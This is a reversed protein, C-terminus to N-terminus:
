RISDHRVVEGSRVVLAGPGGQRPSWVLALDTGARRDPVTLPDTWVHIASRGSSPRSSVEARASDPREPETVSRDGVDPAASVSRRSSWRSATIYASRTRFANLSRDVTV